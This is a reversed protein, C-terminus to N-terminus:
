RFGSSGYNKEIFDVIESWDSGPSFVTKRHEYINSENQLIDIGVRNNIDQWHLTREASFTKYADASARVFICIGKRLICENDKEWLGKKFLLGLKKYEYILLNAQEDTLPKSYGLTLEYAIPGVVEIEGVKKKKFLNGLEM